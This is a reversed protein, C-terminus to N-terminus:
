VDQVMSENDDLDVVPADEEEDDDIFGDDDDDEQDEMYMDELYDEDDSLLADREMRLDIGDEEADELHIELDTLYKTLEAVKVELEVITDDRAKRQRCHCKSERAFLKITSRAELLAFHDLNAKTRARDAEQQTCYLMFDLHDVHHSLEHHGPMNMPRGTDDRQALHWFREEQTEEVHKGCMRALMEQLVRALADAWTNEVIEFEILPSTPDGVKGHCSAMVLWRLEGEPHNHLKTGTFGPFPLELHLTLATLDHEFVLSGGRGLQYHTIFEPEM